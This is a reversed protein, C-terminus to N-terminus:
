TGGASLGAHSTIGNDATIGVGNFHTPSGVTLTNGSSGGPGFLSGGVAANGGVTHSGSVSMNGNVAHAGNVTVNGSITGGTNPFVVPILGNLRDETSRSKATGATSATATMGILVWLLTLVESNRKVARGGMYVALLALGLLLLKKM